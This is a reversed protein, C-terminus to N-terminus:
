DAIFVASTLYPQGGKTKLGIFYTSEVRSKSRAPKSSFNVYCGRNAGHLTSKKISTPWPAVAEETMAPIVCDVVADIRGTNKGLKNLTLVTAKRASKTAANLQGARATKFVARIAKEDKMESGPYAYSTLPLSHSHAPAAPAALLSGSVLAATVVTRAVGAPVVTLRMM